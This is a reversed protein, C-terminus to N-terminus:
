HHHHHHGTPPGGLSELAKSLAQDTERMAAIAERIKAAAEKQGAEAAVKRWKDMEAEHSHNHDIWHDLLIQLKEIDSKDTM